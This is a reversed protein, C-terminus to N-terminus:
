AEIVLRAGPTEAVNSLIMEMWQPQLGCEGAAVPPPLIIYGNDDGVATYRRAALCLATIACVIAARDDHNHFSQLPARLPRGPLLRTVLGALRDGRTDTTLREFYRDSRRKTGRPFGEDLMVGLFSTPFAEAVACPHVRALYRAEAICGMELATKVFANTAGNLKLGNPSNSQGPKGIHPALRRTLVRDAARYAGIEDLDRRFPGDFAAALLPHDDVLASLSQAVDTPKATFRVTQLSVGDRHFQLHCAASTKRKESWGVDGGLVAGCQPLLHHSM